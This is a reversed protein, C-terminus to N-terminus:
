EEFDPEIFLVLADTALGLSYLPKHRNAIIDTFSFSPGKPVTIRFRPVPSKELDAEQYLSGYLRELPDNPYFNARIKQGMPMKFALQVITDNKANHPSLPPPLTRSLTFATRIFDLQALQSAKIHKKELDIQAAIHFAEDQIDILSPSEHLKTVLNQMFAPNLIDFTAHFKCQSKWEFLAASGVFYSDKFPKVLSSFTTSNASTATFLCHHLQEHLFYIALDPQDRQLRQLRSLIKAHYPHHTSLIVLLFFPHSPLITTTDHLTAPSPHNKQLFLPMPFPLLWDPIMNSPCYCFLFDLIALAAEWLFM